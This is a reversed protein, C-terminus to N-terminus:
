YCRVISFSLQQDASVLVMGRMSAEEYVLQYRGDNKQERFVRIVAPYGVNFLPSSTVATFGETRGLFYFGWTDSDQASQLSLPIIAKVADVWLANQKFSAFANDIGALDRRWTSTYLQYATGALILVGTMISIALLLEILTFGHKIKVKM